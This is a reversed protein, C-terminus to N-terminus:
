KLRQGCHRCFMDDKAVKMRCKDCANFSIGGSTERTIGVPVDMRKINRFIKEKPEIRLQGTEWDMGTYLGQIGVSARGGISSDSLTILVHTDPDVERAELYWKLHDFLEQATMNKLEIKGKVHERNVNRKELVRIRIM